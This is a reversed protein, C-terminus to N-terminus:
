LRKVRWMFPSTANLNVFLVWLYHKKKKKSKKEQNLPLFFSFRTCAAAVQVVCTCYPSQNIYFCYDAVEERGMGGSETDRRNLAVAM